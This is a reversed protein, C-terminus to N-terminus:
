RGVCCHRRQDAGGLMSKGEWFSTAKTIGRRTRFRYSGFCRATHEGIVQAEATEGGRAPSPGAGPGAGETKYDGVADTIYHRPFAFIRDTAAREFANAAALRTRGFANPDSRTLGSVTYFEAGPFKQLVSLLEALGEMSIFARDDDSEYYDYIHTLVVYLGPPLRGESLLYRLDFLDCSAPLCLLSRHDIEELPAACLGVGASLCRIGCEELVRVTTEDYSNHPPIFTWPTMHLAGQFVDLGAAVLEKQKHHALGHFESEHACEAIYSAHSFGHLAIECPSDELTRLFQSADPSYEALRDPIVAITLPIDKDVFFRILQEQADMKNNPYDDFRFVFTHKETQVPENYVAEGGWCTGAGSFCSLIVIVSLWRRVRMARIPRKGRTFIGFRPTGSMPDDGPSFITEPAMNRELLDFCSESM